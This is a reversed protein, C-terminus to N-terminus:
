KKQYEVFFYIQFLLLKMYDKRWIDILSCYVKNQINFCDICMSKNNILSSIFNFINHIEVIGIGEKWLSVFYFYFAPIHM